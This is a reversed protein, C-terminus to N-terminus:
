DGCGSYLLMSARSQIASVVKHSHDRSLMGLVNGLQRDHACGSVGVHTTSGLRLGMDVVADPKLKLRSCVMDCPCVCVCRCFVCHLSCSFVGIRERLIMFASVCSSQFHLRCFLNMVIWFVCPAMRVLAFHHFIWPQVSCPRTRRPNMRTGIYLPRAIRPGKRTRM